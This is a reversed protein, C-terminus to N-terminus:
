KIIVLKEIAILELGSTLKVIYIGKSLKETNCSCSSQGTGVQLREMLQGGLNYIEIAGNQPVPNFTIQIKDRSPNPYINLIDQLILNNEDNLESSSTQLKLALPRHDTVNADYERFGGSYYDEIGITRIDSSDRGFAEFLENTIIIHDIHSPWGPYSWVSQSGEAIAMDAMLYNETDDIFSQFVNHEPIDTILDNLDGLLIVRDDPFYTDIYYKIHLSADLRRKEEDGDDNLNLFGDGCCKFHNNIFIYKKGRFNIELVLPARPLPRWYIEDTYIEYFDLVEVIDPKYVYALGGHYGPDYFWDYGDLNNIMKNFLFTDEIEQLALIEVDLARIIKEVSDATAQGNKPFWEINWTVVDFTNEAGFTLDKLSQAYLCSSITIFIILLWNKQM